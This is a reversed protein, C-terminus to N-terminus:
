LYDEEVPGLGDELQITESSVSLGAIDGLETTATELFGNAGLMVGIVLSAALAAVSMWGASSVVEDDNAAGLRNNGGRRSAFDIVNESGVEGQQEMAQAETQAAPTEDQVISAFIRDALAIDSQQDSGAIVDAHGLLQDLRQGERVIAQAEPEADIFANLAQQDDSPWRTADGGYAEVVTRLRELQGEYEGQRTM